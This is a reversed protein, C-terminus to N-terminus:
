ADLLQALVSEFDAHADGRAAVVQDPRILAWDAEYLDHLAPLAFSQVTLPMNRQRAAQTWRLAQAEDLAFNLL